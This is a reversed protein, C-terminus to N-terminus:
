DLEQEVYYESKKPTTTNKPVTVCCGVVQKPNKQIKNPGVMRKQTEANETLPTLAKTAPERRAQSAPQSAPNSAWQSVSQSSAQRDPSNSDQEVYYESKQQKQQTTIRNCVFGFSTNTGKKKQFEVM